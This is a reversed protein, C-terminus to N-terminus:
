KERIDGFNTASRSEHYGKSDQWSTVVTADVIIKGSITSKSFFLERKLITSTIYETDTCNGPLNFNLTDLCYVPTDANTYFVTYDNERESRLWEVAEQSYRNALTKNKSFISNSISNTSMVVIAVIIMTIIFLALVVEFMSQGNNYTKKM